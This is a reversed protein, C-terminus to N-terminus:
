LLRFLRTVYLGCISSYVTSITVYVCLHNRGTGDMQRSSDSPRVYHVRTRRFLHRTPGVMGDLLQLFRWSQLSFRWVEKWFRRARCMLVQDARKIRLTSIRTKSALFCLWITELVM